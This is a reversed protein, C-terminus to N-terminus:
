SRVGTCDTTFWVIAVLELRPVDSNWLSKRVPLGSPCWIWSPHWNPTSCVRRSSDDRKPTPSNGLSKTPKHTPIPRGAAARCLDDACCHVVRLRGAALNNPNTNSGCRM